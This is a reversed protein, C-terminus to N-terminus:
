SVEGDLYYWRGELRVFRSVEHMRYARGQIKYRATFEVTAHDADQQQHTQVTLGLWKTPPQALDLEAPRTDPHWTARLYDERLRTYATYRSRMLDEASAPIAGGDLHRGCCHEYPQARGCPCPLAAM